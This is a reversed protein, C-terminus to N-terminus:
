PHFVDDALGFEVEGLQGTNGGTDGFLHATEVAFGFRLHEIAAFLLTLVVQVKVRQFHVTERFDLM